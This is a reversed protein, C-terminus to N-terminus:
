LSTKIQKFYTGTNIAIECNTYKTAPKNPILKNNIGITAFNVNNGPIKIINNELNNLNQM